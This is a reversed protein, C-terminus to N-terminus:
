QWVVAVANSVNWSNGQPQPCFALQPDRYYVQYFRVAGPPITDGLQASRMRISPDGIHPYYAFGSAANHVGIRKLNGGVCRVGDGFIQGQPQNVNGQLFISLASPLERVSNLTVTDQAVIGTAFLQAGGTNASNNCGGGPLGFNGCPCPTPTSGDGFCYPTGIPQPASGLGFTDFSDSWGASTDVEFTQPTLTPITSPMIATYLIYDGSAPDSVFSKTFTVGHLAMRASLDDELQELTHVGDSQMPEFGFGMPSDFSMTGSFGPPLVVQSNSAFIRRFFRWLWFQSNGADPAFKVKNPEGTTDKITLVDLGAGGAITITVTAGSISAEATGEHDLIPKIKEYIAQAKQEPTCPMTIHITGSKVDLGGNTGVIHFELDGDHEPQGMTASSSSDASAIATVVCLLIATSLSQRLYM